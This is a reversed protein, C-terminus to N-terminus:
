QIETWRWELGGGQRLLRVLLLGRSSFARSYSNYWVLLTGKEKNLISKAVGDQIVPYYFALSIEGERSRIKGRAHPLRNEREQPLGAALRLGKRAPGTKLPEMKGPTRGGTEERRWGYVSPPRVSLTIKEPRAREAMEPLPLVGGSVMSEMAAGYLVTGLVRRPPRLAHANTKRKLSRTEVGGREPHWSRVSVKGLFLRAINERLRDLDVRKRAWPM